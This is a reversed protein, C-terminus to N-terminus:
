CALSQYPVNLLKKETETRRQGSVREGSLRWSLQGCRSWRRNQFPFYSGKARRGGAGDRTECEKGVGHKGAPLGRGGKQPSEARNAHGGVVV